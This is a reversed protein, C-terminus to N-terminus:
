MGRMGPALLTRPQPGTAAELGNPSAHAIAPGPARGARRAYECGAVDLAHMGGDRSGSDVGVRIDMLKGIAQAGLLLGLVAAAGRTIGAM